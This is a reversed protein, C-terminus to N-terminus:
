TISNFQGMVEYQLYGTATNGGTSQDLRWQITFNDDTPDVIQAEVSDVDHTNDVQRIIMGPEQYGGAGNQLFFEGLYAITSHASWDGSIFAKVYCGNHDTLNITLQANTNYSTTLSLAKSGFAHGGSHNGNKIHVDDQPANTGIGVRDNSGKIFLTNANNNTEVRFDVNASGENFVAGASSLTLLERSNTQDYIAFQNNTVVSNGIEWHQVSNQFRLSSKVNANRYLRAEVDGSAASIDLEYSPSSNGIGVNGSAAIRMREAYIDNNSTKFILNGTRNASSSFDEERGSLIGASTFGNHTFRIQVTEDTSGGGASNNTRLVEADGGDVAKSLHLLSGPNTEGIGVNGSSDVVVRTAGATRDFIEFVGGSAGINTGFGWHRTTSKVQFEANQGAGTSELLSLASTGEVHLLQDPNTTGIGLRKNAADYTMGVNGNLDRFFIKENTSPAQLLLGTSTSSFLANQGNGEVWGIVNVDGGNKIQFRTSDNSVFNMVGSSHVVNIGYSTNGLYLNHTSTGNNILAAGAVELKQSPGTTGIGIRDTIHLEHFSGTSTSSGSIFM